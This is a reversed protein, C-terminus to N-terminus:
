FRMCDRLDDFAYLSADKLSFMAVASMLADPLPYTIGKRRHEPLENFVQRIRKLLAPTSLTKRFKLSGPKPLPYKKLRM